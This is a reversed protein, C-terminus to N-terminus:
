EAANAFDVVLMGKVAREDDLHQVVGSVVFDSGRKEFSGMELTEDLLSGESDLYRILLRPIGGSASIREAMQGYLTVTIESSGDESERVIGRVGEDIQLRIPSYHSRVSGIPFRLEELLQKLGSAVEEGMAKWGHVLELIPDKRTPMSENIENRRSSQLKGDKVFYETEICKEFATKALKLRELYTTSVRKEFSSVEEESLLGDMYSDELKALEDLEAKLSEADEEVSM